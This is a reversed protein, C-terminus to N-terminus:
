HGNRPGSYSKNEARQALRDVMSTVTPNDKRGQADANKILKLDDQLLTIRLAFGDETHAVRSSMACGLQEAVVGRAWDHIANEDNLDLEQAELQARSLHLTYYIRAPTADPLEHWLGPTRLCYKLLAHADQKVSPPTGPALSGANHVEVGYKDLLVSLASHAIVHLENESCRVNCTFDPLRKQLWQRVHFATDSNYPMDKPATVVREYRAHGKYKWGAVGQGFLWDIYRQETATALDTVTASTAEQSTHHSQDTM